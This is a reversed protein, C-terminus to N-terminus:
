NHTSKGKAFTNGIMYESHRKNRTGYNCNYEHSCWELNDVCNNLKNEDKHNVEYLNDPNDIFHEAVLRHIPFSKGKHHKYLSVQCYGDSDYQPKLLGDKGTKKYNLSKVNGYNSIQYLGEYGEIDKYIEM